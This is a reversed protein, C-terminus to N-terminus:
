VFKANEDALRQAEAMVRAIVLAVGAVFLYGFWATTIGFTVAFKGASSALIASQVAESLKATLVTWFMLSAVRNLHAIAAADFVQGSAYSRFLRFLTALLWIGLGVPISAAALTAVRYVLPTASTINDATFGIATGALTGGLHIIPNPVLYALPVAIAMLLASMLSLWAMVTSATRLNRSVQM